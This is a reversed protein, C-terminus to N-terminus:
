IMFIIQPFSFIFFNKSVVFGQIGYEITKVLIHEYKDVSTNFSFFMNSEWSQVYLCMM